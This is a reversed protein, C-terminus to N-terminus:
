FPAHFSFAPILATIATNFPHLIYNASVRDALKSKLALKVMAILTSTYSEANLFHM